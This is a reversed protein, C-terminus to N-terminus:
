CPILVKLHLLTIVVKKGIIRSLCNKGRLVEFGEVTSPNQFGRKMRVWWLFKSNFLVILEKNHDERGVELDGLTPSVIRPVLAGRVTVGILWQIPLQSKLLVRRGFGTLLFIREGLGLVHGCGEGILIKSFGFIDSGILWIRFLFISVDLFCIELVLTTASLWPLHPVSNLIRSLPFLSRLMQLVILGLYSQSTAM